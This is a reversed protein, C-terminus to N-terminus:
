VGGRFSPVRDTTAAGASIAMIGEAQEICWGLARELRERLDTTM